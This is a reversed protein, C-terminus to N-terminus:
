YGVQLNLDAGAVRDPIVKPYGPRGAGKRGWIGVKSTTSYIETSSCTRSPILVTSSCPILASPSTLSSLQRSVLRWPFSGRRSLMISTRCIVFGNRLDLFTTKREKKRM